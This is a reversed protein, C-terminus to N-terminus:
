WNQSITARCVRTTCFPRGRLEEPPSAHSQVQSIQMCAMHKTMSGPAGEVQFLLSIYFFPLNVHM